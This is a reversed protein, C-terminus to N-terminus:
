DPSNARFGPSPRLSVQAVPIYLSPERDVGADRVDAVVGIVQRPRDGSEPDLGKGITIFEGIPNADVEQGYQKVMARNLLVVGAANEDDDGTFPPNSVDPLIAALREAVHATGDYHGLLFHDNKLITFPM